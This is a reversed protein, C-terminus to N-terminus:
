DEEIYIDENDLSDDSDCEHDKLLVDAMQLTNTKIYVLKQVKEPGLRNRLKSHIFGFTSFNRESAASSAAMSFARLALNQLLPWDTGDAMWWQLVSKSKGIMKFRFTSLQREKLADIRFATYEQAMQEMRAQNTTGDKSPFKYVFDEIENRLTRLMADGLYRPDLLYAVGHVDGYMFIFRDRVLKVLYAKKDADVNALSRMKDELEVFAKYVDSCPAADSQFMKVFMDIPALIKTCEDLKTIFDPDTIIAKIAVRKEKQKASGKTVFERESVLGNLIDDAARLSKFCGNLTAWRTPAPKVLGSLKAVALAKKLKAKPVHHNHFFEVVDKCDMAFLLLKEFPYGAPYEAPGGGPPEKKKAAFIDKVLLHLGHSVCGHFFHTPYKEELESWVKKNTTTNDTVAGVVNDGLSDIVRSLDKALWDADPGQEETHVAELFLSKSPCVAIYNIVPHNAMNSWADSTICVFQGDTSLVKNVEVKVKQYCEELLGGAGDDALQKRTPLKAGPRAMQIARLLFPDEVRQFSTGTCYFHM